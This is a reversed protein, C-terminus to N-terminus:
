PKRLVYLAWGMTDRQWQLYIYKDHKLRKLIEPLDHDQPDDQSYKTIAMWGLTEYHDFDQQTSVMTYICTLGLNEATKVNDYHSEAYTERKMHDAKLYEPDPAKLWYPEGVIITGHPRTMDKLAQLTGKYDNWIWTAGMCSTIDFLLGEPPKYDKADLQIFALAANPVRHKAKNQAEQIFHPSIDVGVGTVHYLEALRVLFEGKGCAIDLATSNPRLRLLQLLTELREKNLPNCYTHLKERISYFKWVDM